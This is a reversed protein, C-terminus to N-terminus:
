STRRSTERREAHVWAPHGLHDAGDERVAARWEKSVVGGTLRTTEEPLRAWWSRVDAVASM